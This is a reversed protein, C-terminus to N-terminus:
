KSSAPYVRCPYKKINYSTSTKKFWTPGQLKKELVSMEAIELFKAKDKVSEFELTLFGWSENISIGSNLINDFKIVYPFVSNFNNLSIIYNSDKFYEILLKHWEIRRKIYKDM